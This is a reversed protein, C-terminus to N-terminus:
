SHNVDTAKIVNKKEQYWKCTIKVRTQNQWAFSTTFTNGARYRGGYVCVCMCVYETMASTFASLYCPSASSFCLQLSLLNALLSNLFHRGHLVSAEGRLHQLRISIRKAKCDARREVRNCKISWHPLNTKHLKWQHGNTKDLSCVSGLVCLSPVPTALNLLRQQKTLRSQASSALGRNLECKALHSTQMATQLRPYCVCRSVFLPTTNALM